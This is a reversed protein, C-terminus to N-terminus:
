LPSLFVVKGDPTIGLRARLETLEATARARALEYQLLTLDRMANERAARVTTDAALEPPLAAVVHDQPADGLLQPRGKAPSKTNITAVAERLEQLCMIMLNRSNRGSGNMNWMLNRFNRKFNRSSRKMKWMLNKFNRMFRRESNNLNRM